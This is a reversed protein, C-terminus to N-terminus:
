KNKDFAKYIDGFSGAGIRELVNYRPGIEIDINIVKKACYITPPKVPMM